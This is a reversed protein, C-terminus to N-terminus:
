WEMRKLAERWAAADDGCDMQTLEKLAALVAARQPYNRSPPLVREWVTAPRVRVFFDYRQEKPWKGPNEVPQTVSFDQRLYTVDARVFNGDMGGEYYIPSFQLVERDASPILGPVQHRFEERNNTTMPAHCLMCNRFHNVRVVERVMPWAGEKAVFPARPDPQDLLNVLVPVMNQSDLQVMADAARDAAPPWPYRLAQLLVPLYDSPKRVKLAEIVWRRNRQDLEFVARNALAATTDPRDTNALAWLAPFRMAADAGMVAQNLTEPPAHYLGSVSESHDKAAMVTAVVTRVATSESSLQAAAKPWLQCENELRFPLGRLDPRTRALALLPHKNDTDNLKAAQRIAAANGRVHPDKCDLDIEPVRALANKLEAESLWNREPRAPKSLLLNSALPEPFEAILKPMGIQEVPLAPPLPQRPNVRRYVTKPETTASLVLDSEPPEPVTFFLRQPASSVKAPQLHTARQGAVVLACLLGAPVLLVALALWLLTERKAAPQHARDESYRVSVSDPVDLELRCFPCFQPQGPEIASVTRAQLCRPCSLVLAM